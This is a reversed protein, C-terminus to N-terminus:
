NWPNAFFTLDVGNEPSWCTGLNTAVNALIESDSDLCHNSAIKQAQFPIRDSYKLADILEFEAGTKEQRNPDRPRPVKKLGFISVEWVIKM